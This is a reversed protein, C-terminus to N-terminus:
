GKIIVDLHRATDDALTNPSVAYPRLEATLTDEYGIEELAQRVAPWDVDGVLLPVFGTINGINRSFDKVHVKFIREGLIRIWQEPYGFQLVNGVDFYAGVYDSQFEDIYTAMELPSLLFKNWVNEIGIKVNYKKATPIIQKLSEQSRKYCEDYPVEETVTGPVVLITDIGIYSAIELMKKVVQIGQERVQKNPSSLPTQWLLSTSLSRLQLQYKSAVLAIEEAQEKTTELTFGEGGIGNLNLEVADFGANRSYEFVKEISTDAPYCWQNIGKLM